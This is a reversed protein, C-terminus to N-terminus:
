RKNEGRENGQSERRSLIGSVLSEINMEGPFVRQALAPSPAATCSKVEWNVRVCNVNSVPGYNWGMELRRQAGSM